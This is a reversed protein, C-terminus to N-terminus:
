KCPNPFKFQSTMFSFGAKAPSKQQVGTDFSPQGHEDVLLKVTTGDPGLKVEQSAGTEVVLGGNEAETSTGYLAYFKNKLKWTVHSNYNPQLKASVDYVNAFVKGSPANTPKPADQFLFYSKSINSENNITLECTISMIAASASSTFSSVFTSSLNISFVPSQATQALLGVEITL